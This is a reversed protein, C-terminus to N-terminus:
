YIDSNDDLMDKLANFGGIHKGDIFIQPVTRSVKLDDVLKYFEIASIDSGIVRESYDYNQEDLMNKVALCHSCTSTSYVEINPISM